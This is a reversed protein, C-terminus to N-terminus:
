NFTRCHQDWKNYEKLLEEVKEPHKKALNKTETADEEMNYLEWDNNTYKVLKWKGDRIMKGFKYDSGIQIPRKALPKSQFLPLLSVGDVPKTNKNNFKEPYEQGTIDLLTSMLDVLHTPTNNWVNKQSIGKPWHAILPTRIGGEHSTKKFYALPTNSVHSWQKGIFIYSQPGGMRENGTPTFNKFFQESKGRSREAGNDSMFLILTNELKKQKKLVEVLRGINQDIKDIAGAYVEM